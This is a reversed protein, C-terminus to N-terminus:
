QPAPATEADARFPDSFRSDTALVPDDLTRLFAVLADKDPQPLNPRLAQGDAGKLRGDLAPGDHM